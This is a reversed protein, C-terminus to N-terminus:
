WSGSFVGSCWLSDGYVICLSTGTEPNGFPDEEVRVLRSADSSMCYKDEETCAMILARSPQFLPLPLQGIGHLLLKGINLM